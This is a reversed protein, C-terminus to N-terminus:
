ESVPLVYQCELQNMAVDIQQIMYDRRPLEELSFERLSSKIQLLIKCRKEGPEQEEEIRSYAM